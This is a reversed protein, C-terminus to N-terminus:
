PFFGSSMNPYAQFSNPIDGGGGAWDQNQAYLSRGAVQAAKLANISEQSLSKGYRGALRVALLLIWLDDLALPFPFTDTSLLTALTLWTGTDARYFWQKNIGANLVTATAAGDILRGNGNLTLSVSSDTLGSVQVMGMRSGRNPAEPFYVTQPTANWVIRSNKPPYFYVTAPLDSALPYQPYNAAVSATRQPQPVMWDALHEGIGVGFFSAILSNLRTVGEAVEPSTAATGVPILNGERYAQQVIESVLTM